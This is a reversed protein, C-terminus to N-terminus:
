QRRALRAAKAAAKTNEYDQDAQTSCAPQLSAELTLCKEVAVKHEGEARAMAIDFAGTARANAVEKPSASAIKSVSRVDKSAEARAQAVERQAEQQTAAVDAASAHPPQHSHCGLLLLATCSLSPANKM